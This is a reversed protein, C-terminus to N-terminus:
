MRLKTIIQDYLDPKATQMPLRSALMDVLPEGVESPFYVTQGLQFRKRPLLQVSNVGGQTLVSFSKFDAYPYIKDNVYLGKKTLTYDLLAPQRRNYVVLAVAMVPVLIAFTLSKIWFIAIAVLALSVLGLWIFWVPTHAHQIYEHAKWRLLVSDSESEVSNDDDSAEPDSSPMVERVVGEVPASSAQADDAEPQITPEDSLPQYPAQTHTETPQRWQQEKDDPQM